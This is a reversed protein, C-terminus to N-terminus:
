STDSREKPLEFTFISGKGEGDSEAWIRGGHREVIYKAIALGLGTGDREVQKANKSRYFEDFVRGLDERGLGIGDDSCIVRVFRGSNQMEMRVRGGQRSYKIANSLLSIVVEECASEDGPVVCGQALSCDIEISKKGAEDKLLDVSRSVVSDLGVQEVEFEERLRASTLKLLSKVFRLLKGTRSEARELLERQTNDVKGTMGALVPAVCSQIAALHAQIDHSVRFVYQSKLRDQEALKEHAEQLEFRRRRLESSISTTMYVVLYLTTTLAFVRGFVSVPSGHHELVGFGAVHHHPIAGLYELLGISVVIAAAFTAQLYSARRSLLVSSIGMHFVFYIIFPNEIGGSFHMLLGLSLLDVAIQVNAFARADRALLLGNKRAEVLRHYFLFATNYLFIFVIVAALATVEIEM